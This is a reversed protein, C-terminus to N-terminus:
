SHCRVVTDLENTCGEFVVENKSCTVPGKIRCQLFEDLGPCGKFQSAMAQCDSSCQVISAGPFCLDVARRCIEDCTPVPTDTPQTNGGAPNGNDDPQHNDVVRGGCGIFFIIFTGCAKGIKSAMSTM